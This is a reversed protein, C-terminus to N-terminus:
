VKSAADTHWSSTRRHASSSPTECWSAVPTKAYTAGTTQFSAERWGPSMMIRVEQGDVVREGVVPAAECANSPGAPAPRGGGGEPGADGMAAESARAGQTLGQAETSTRGDWDVVNPYLCCSKTSLVRLAQRGVIWGVAFIVSITGLARLIVDHWRTLTLHLCQEPRCWEFFTENLDLGEFTQYVLEIMGIGDSNAIAFANLALRALTPQDWLHLHYHDGVATIVRGDTSAGAALAEFHRAAIVSYDGYSRWEHISLDTWQVQVSVRASPRSRPPATKGFHVCLAARSTKRDAFSSCGKVLGLDMTCRCPVGAYYAHM